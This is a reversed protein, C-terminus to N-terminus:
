RATWLQGVNLFLPTIRSVESNNIWTWWFCYSTHGGGHFMMGTYDTPVTYMLHYFSRSMSIYTLLIHFKPPTIKSLSQPTIKSMPYNQVTIVYITPYNHVGKLFHKLKEYKWSINIIIYFATYSLFKPWITFKLILNKQPTIISLYYKKFFIIYNFRKFLWTKFNNTGLM